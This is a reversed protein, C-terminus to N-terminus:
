KIVTVTGKRFINKQHYTFTTMWVFTNLITKDKKSKGDWKNFPDNSQFVLQGWRDYITLHYNTIASLNGLPGFYDNKGDGNPTFASAFYIEGCDEKVDITDSAVCGFTDSVRVWYIDGRTVTYTSTTSNDQWLYSSYNGPQLILHNGPCITTDNGLFIKLPNMSAVIINNKLLSCANSDTILVSYNGPSLNSVTATNASVNNWLYKYPISGGSAIVTATGNNADCIANQTQVTAQLATPETITINETISCTNTEDIQVTYTGASLNTATNKKQVPNTSWEYSYNGKGGTATVVAIANMDGNCYLPSIIKIDADLVTIDKTIISSNNGTGSTTFTVTYTGPASFTHSANESTSTNLAGSVPDDFNWLFSEPCLTSADEFDVIRNGRCTYNFDSVIAPAEGIYIHDFAFGDYNNCINGSAFVFRFKVNAKGALFPLTHQRTYWQGSGNGTLCNGGGSTQINGSWGDGAGLTSLFVVSSYNYWSSNYCNNQTNADFLNIWSNGGDVSYQMAAGDYKLETEWFIEFSIYPHQLTTFDFCPSQIWSSENDAYSSGTLGGTIWCKNGSFANTIVAKSPKGWTWDSSVGGATWGGNSTEFDENYPFSNIVANCQASTFKSISFLLLVLFINKFFSHLQLKM